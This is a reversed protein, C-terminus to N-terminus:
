KEVEQTWTFPLTLLEEDGQKIVLLGQGEQIDILQFSYVQKKEEVEWTCAMQAQCSQPYRGAKIGELISAARQMAFRTADAEEQISVARVHVQMCILSSLSFLFIVLIVEMLFYVSKSATQAKM